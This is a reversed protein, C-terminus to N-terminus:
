EVILDAQMNTHGPVDCIVRYVGATLTATGSDVDGRGSIELKFNAVKEGDKALILTHLISDDNVYGITVEGAPVPGYESKDFILGSKARVELAGSPITEDPESSGGGCAALIATALVGVVSSSLGRHGRRVPITPTETTLPTEHLTM